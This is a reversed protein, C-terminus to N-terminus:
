KGPRPAVIVPNLDREADAQMQELLVRQREEDDLLRTLPLFRPRFIKVLFEVPLKCIPCPKRDAVVDNRLYVGQWTWCELCMEHGCNAVHPDRILGHCVVCQPGEKALEAVAAEAQTDMDADEDSDSAFSESMADVQVRWEADPEYEEDEGQTLEEHDEIALDIEDEVEAALVEDERQGETRPLKKQFSHYLNAVEHHFKEVTIQKRVLKDELM